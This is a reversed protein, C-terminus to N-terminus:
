SPRVKRDRTEISNAYLEGSDSPDTATIIGAAICFVIARRPHAVLPKLYRVADLRQWGQHERTAAWAFEMPRSFKRWTFQPVLYAMADRFVPFPDVCDRGCFQVHWKESNHNSVIAYRKDSKLVYRRGAYEASYPISERRFFEGYPPIQGTM